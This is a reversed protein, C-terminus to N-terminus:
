DIYTDDHIGGWCISGGLSVEGGGAICDAASVNTAGGSNPNTPTCHNAYYTRSLERLENSMAVSRSTNSTRLLTRIRNQLSQCTNPPNPIRVFPLPNLVPNPNIPRPSPTGTDQEKSPKGLTVGGAEMTRLFLETNADYRAPAPYRAPAIYGGGCMKKAATADDLPADPLTPATLPASPTVGSPSTNYFYFCGGNASGFLTGTGGTTDLHTQSCTTGLTVPYGRLWGRRYPYNRDLNLNNLNLPSPPSPSTVVYAVAYNVVSAYPNNCGAGALSTNLALLRKKVWSVYDDATGVYTATTRYNNSRSSNLNTAAPNNTTATVLNGTYNDYNGPVTWGSVNNSKRPPNNVIIIDYDSKTRVYKSGATANLGRWVGVGAGTTFDYYGAGLYGGLHVSLNTLLSNQQNLLANCATTNNLVPLALPLAPNTAPTVPAAPAPNTVETTGGAKMLPIGGREMARYFNQTNEDPPAIQGGRCMKRATTDLAYWSPLVYNYNSGRTYGNWGDFYGAQYGAQSDLDSGLTANYSADYGVFASSRAAKRANFGAAHGKQYAEWWLLSHASTTYLTPSFTAWNRFGFGGHGATGGKAMTGTGGPPRRFRWYYNYVPYPYTYYTYPNLNQSKAWRCLNDFGEDLLSGRFTQQTGNRNYVTCSTVDGSTSVVENNLSDNTGRSTDASRGTNLHNNPDNLDAVPTVAFPALKNVWAALLYFVAVVGLFTWVNTTIKETAM